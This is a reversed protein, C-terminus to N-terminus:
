HVGQGVHFFFNVLGPGAGILLSALGAVLVTRRGIYSQQYNSSHAGLAWAAAGIVLAVLSLVLAWGGIGDTLRQLVKGGPLSDTSPHFQVDAMHAWV